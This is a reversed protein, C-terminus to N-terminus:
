IRWTINKEVDEWIHCIARWINSCQYKLIVNPCVNPGCNYKAKMVKVWLKDPNVVLQWALKIIYAQNVARM